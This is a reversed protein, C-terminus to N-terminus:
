GVQQELRFAEGVLHDHHVLAVRHDRARGLLEGATVPGRGAHQEIGVVRTDEVGCARQRVHLLVLAVTHGYDVELVVALNRIEDVVEDGRASTERPDLRAGRCEFLEVERDRLLVTALSRLAYRTDRRWACCGDHTMARVSRLCSTCARSKQIGSDTTARSNKTTIGAKRSNTTPDTFFLWSASLSLSTTPLRGFSRCALTCPEFPVAPADYASATYRNAGSAIMTGSVTDLATPACVMM